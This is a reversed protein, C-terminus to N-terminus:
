SIRRVVIELGPMASYRKLTQADVIQADDRYIVGNCADEAAKLINSIDPKGVPRIGDVLALRQKSPSWSAPVPMLAVLEFRVADLTAPQGQMAIRALKAIAREYAVAERSAVHKIEGDEYFSRHREKGRPICPVTFRIETWTAPLEARAKAIVSDSIERVAQERAAPGLDSLTTNRTM